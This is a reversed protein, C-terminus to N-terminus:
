TLPRAGQEKKSCDNGATKGASPRFICLDEGWEEEMSKSYYHGDAIIMSDILEIGLIDGSESLCESMVKDGMSPRPDGSPHNHVVVIKTASSLLAGRYIERATTTTSGMSGKSVEECSIVQNRLDLHLAYVCERDYEEMEKLFGYVDRPGEIKLKAFGQGERTLRVSIRYGKYGGDQFSFEKMDDKLAQYCKRRVGSGHWAHRITM